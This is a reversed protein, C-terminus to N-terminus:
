NRLDPEPFTARAWDRFGQAERLHATIDAMARHLKSDGYSALHPNTVDHGVASKLLRRFIGWDYSYYTLWSALLPMKARVVLLDFTAVGSGAIAFMGKPIGTEALVDDIEADIDALSKSGAVCAQILGNEKHMALAEPTNRLSDAAAKTLKTVEQYGGVAHINMATDTVILGIELVHVDSFDIVEDHPTPISTTELDIWVLHSATSSM